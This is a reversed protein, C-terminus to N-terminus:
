VPKSLLDAVAQHCERFAQWVSVCWAHIAQDREVGEPAAMVDAASVSVRTEPLPFTPWLRASSHVCGGRASSIFSPDGHALTYCQLEEYADQEPM